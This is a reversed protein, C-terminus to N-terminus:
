ELDLRHKKLWYDKYIVSRHEFRSVVSWFKQVKETGFYYFIYKGLAMVFDSDMKATVAQWLIEGSKVALESDFDTCYQTYKKGLSKLYEKSLDNRAPTKWQQIEGKGDFNKPLAMLEMDEQLEIEYSLSDYHTLNFEANIASMAAGLYKERIPREREHRAELLLLELEKKNESMFKLDDLLFSPEKALPNLSLKQIIKTFSKCNYM